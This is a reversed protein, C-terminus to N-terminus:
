FSSKSTIKATPGTGDLCFQYIDGFEGGAKNYYVCSSSIKDSGLVGENEFEQADQPVAPALFKDLQARTKGIKVQQYKEPTIASRAQDADLSDSVSKAAGGLLTACGAIVLIFLLTLGLLVNRATHNKKAKFKKGCNPCKDEVTQSQVGCNPCVKTPAVMQPSASGYPQTM